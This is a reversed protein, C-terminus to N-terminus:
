IELFSGKQHPNEGYRLENAQTFNQKFVPLNFDTNFYNFIATDYHSSVNFADLAFRKRDAIFTEGNKDELM